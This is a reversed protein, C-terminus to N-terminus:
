PYGAGAKGAFDQALDLAKLQFRRTSFFDQAPADLVKM